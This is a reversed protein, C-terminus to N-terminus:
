NFNQPGPIVKNKGGSVEEYATTYGNVKNNKVVNNDAPTSTYQDYDGVGIDYAGDTGEEFVKNNEILANNLLAYIGVDANGSIINQSVEVNNGSEYLLIATAAADVCCWSNGGIQNNTVKGLAGFGLQVGNAALNAQTASSGIKNNHINVLVDGNAVIGTKQYNSVDNLSIEVSKTAPHTGDFPANRVEIANGEQCGSAGQNIDLIKNNIITGSAGEFMIGRLRDNGGDCVNSLSSTKITLKTVSASAGENKVVAGKFHNGTPDVATITYNAGDLTFGDPINITQDTICNANLKMVNGNTTFSCPELSNFNSVGFIGAVVALGALGIHLHKRHLKFKKKAM